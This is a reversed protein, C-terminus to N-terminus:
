WMFLDAPIDRVMVTKRGDKKASAQMKTLLVELAIPLQELCEQSTNFGKEKNILRVKSNNILKAM